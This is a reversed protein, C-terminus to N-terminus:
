YILNNSLDYGKGNWRKDDLYEGDFKLKGNNYYEKGKGNRKDDLYEGEFVLNNDLYEKGKGNRKGNLYEGEYLRFLKYTKGIGKVKNFQNKIKGNADYETGLLEIGDLYEGDCKLKGNYYYEKGKGNREGNLYEGEFILNDIEYEKGTGNRKGNLYEGEYILNDKCYEKGKGKSEYIIYKGTFHIYNNITINLYKQLNKNKKVLKLKQKEELYSFFIEIIYYSKVNKLM